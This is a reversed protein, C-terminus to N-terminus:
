RMQLSSIRRVSETRIARGTSRITTSRTGLLRDGLICNVETVFGAHVDGAFDANCEWPPTNIAVFDETVGIEPMEGVLWVADDSFTVGLWITEPIVVTRGLSITLEHIEGDNPFGSIFASAGPIPLGGNGPCKDYITTQVNFPVGGFGGVAVTYSVLRRAAGALTLDDAIEVGPGPALFLLSTASNAYELQCSSVGCDTNNGEYVSGNILCSEFSELQCTDDVLCCAGQAPGTFQHQFTAFDRLNLLGNMDSDFVELCSSDATILCESLNRYDGLDVDADFNADSGLGVVSFTSTLENNTEIRESVDDNSDVTLSITHLGPALNGAAVDELSATAGSMLGTVPISTPMAGDIAININFNTADAAGQNTWAYDVFVEDVSTITASSTTTGRQTSVVIPGSWGTPTAPALDPRIVTQWIEGGSGVALFSDGAWMVEELPSVTFGGVNTWSTGNSSRRVSGNRGVAIFHGGGFAVSNLNESGALHTTWTEGNTTSRYVRGSDGVAVWIGAGFVAHRIAGVGDYVEQFIQGDLSLDIRGTGHVAVFRGNGFAVDRVTGLPRDGIAETMTIQWTQCNPSNAVINTWNFVPSVEFFSGVAVCGPNGIAVGTWLITTTGIFGSIDGLGDVIGDGRALLFGSDSGDIDFITPGTLGAPSWSIGDLSLISVGSNGGALVFEIGAATGLSGAFLSATTGSERQIWDDFQQGYSPLPLFGLTVTFLLLAARWKM